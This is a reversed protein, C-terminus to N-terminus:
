SNGWVDMLDDDAAAFITTVRRNKRRTRREMYADIGHLLLWFDEGFKLRAAEVAADLEKSSHDSISKLKKCKDRQQIEITDNAYM